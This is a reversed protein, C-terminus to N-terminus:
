RQCRRTNLEGQTESFIYKIRSDGSDQPMIEEEPALVVIMKKGELKPAAELNETNKWNLSSVVVFRGRTKLCFRVDRLSDCLGEGECRGAPIGERM